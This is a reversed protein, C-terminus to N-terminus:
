ASEQTFVTVNVVTVSCLPVEKRGQQEKKAPSQDGHSERIQNDVLWIGAQVDLDITM